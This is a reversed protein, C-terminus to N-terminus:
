SPPRGSEDLRDLDGYLGLLKADEAGWHYRSSAARAAASYEDLDALIARTATAIADPAEPPVAIGAGTEEIIPSIESEESGIVPLGAMFYEFLKNPLATRYSLSAGVINCLGVTAAATYDLLDEYPIPGLFRVRDGVGLREVLKEIAPRHHGWGIIVLGVDDLRTLAAVAAELGRHEQITGQYVLLPMGEGLGAERHLNVPSIERSPPTNLVAAALRPLRGYRENLMGLWIPSAVILGDVRRLWRRETFAAWRRSLRGMRSRESAFEHSDYVLRAGNARASKLAVWLTNRDHAHFVDAPISRGVHLLRRNEIMGKVARAPTHFLRFGIHLGIRLLAVLVLAARAKIKAFLGTRGELRVLEDGPNTQVSDAGPTATMPPYVRAVRDLKAQDAPAGDAPVQSRAASRAAGAARRALRSIGHDGARVRIVEVGDATVEREPTVGPVLLAVVTVEHGADILSHAEKAVRADFEFSNKLFMCIKM